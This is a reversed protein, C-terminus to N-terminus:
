RIKEPYCLKVTGVDIYLKCRVTIWRTFSSVLLIARVVLRESLDIWLLAAPPRMAARECSRNGEVAVVKKFGPQHETAFIGM